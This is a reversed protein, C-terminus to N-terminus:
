KHGGHIMVAFTTAISKSQGVHAAADPFHDEIVKIGFAPMLFRIQDGLITARDASTSIVKVYGAIGAAGNSQAQHAIRVRIGAVAEADAESAGDRNGVLRRGIRRERTRLVGTCQM